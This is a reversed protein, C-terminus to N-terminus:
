HVVRNGIFYFSYFEVLILKTVLRTGLAKGKGPFSATKHSSLPPDLPPAQPIGGSVSARLASPGLYDITQSHTGM